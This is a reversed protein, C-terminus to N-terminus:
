EADAAGDSEVSEGKSYNRPTYGVNVLAQQVWGISYGAIAAIEKLTKGNKRATLASKAIRNQLSDIKKQLQRVEKADAGIKELAAEARAQRALESKTPATTTMM